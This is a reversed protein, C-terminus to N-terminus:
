ENVRNKKFFETLTKSSRFNEFKSTLGTEDSKFKLNDKTCKLYEKSLKNFISCDEIQASSISHISLILLIKLIIKMLIKNKKLNKKRKTKITNKEKRM